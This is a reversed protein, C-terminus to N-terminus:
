GAGGTGARTLSALLAFARSASKMQAYCVLMGALTEFQNVALGVHIHGVMNESSWGCHEHGM